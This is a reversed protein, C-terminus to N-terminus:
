GQEQASRSIPERLCVPVQVVVLARGPAVPGDVPTGGEKDLVRGVDRELPQGKVLDAAVGDHEGVCDVLRFNHAAAERAHALRRNRHEPGGPQHVAGRAVSKVGFAVENLGVNDVRDADVTRPTPHSDSGPRTDGWTPLVANHPDATLTPRTPARPSVEAHPPPTCSLLRTRVELSFRGGVNDLAVYEHVTLTRDKM